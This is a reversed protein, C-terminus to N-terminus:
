NEGGGEREGERPVSIIPTLVRCRFMDDEM